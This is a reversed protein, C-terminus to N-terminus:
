PIKLQDNKIDVDGKFTEVEPSGEQDNVECKFLCNSLGFANSTANNGGASATGAKTSANSYIGTDALVKKTKRDSPSKLPSAFILAKPKLGTL